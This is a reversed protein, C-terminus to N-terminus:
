KRPSYVDSGKVRMSRGQQPNFFITEWDMAIAGNTLIGSLATDAQCDIKASRWHVSFVIRDAAAYGVVPHPIAKCPFTAMTFYSGALAGTAADIGTITLESGRENVWKTGAALSQAAAPIAVCGLALTSALLMHKM